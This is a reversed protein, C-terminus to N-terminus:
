LWGALELWLSACGGGCGPRATGSLRTRLCLRQCPAHQAGPERVDGHRWLRLRCDGTHAVCSRACTEAVVRNGRLQQSLYLFSFFSFLFLLPPPPARVGFRSKDVSELDMGADEVAMRSAAVAFHTYRDTSKITKPTTFYPKPDFDKVEAGITTPFASADFSEITALGSKGSVLSDWFEDKSGLASVVGVGTVVIKPKDAASLLPPPMRSTAATATATAAARLPSPVPSYAFCAATFLTQM